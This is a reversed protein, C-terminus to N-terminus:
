PTGKWASNQAGIAVCMSPACGVGRILDGNNDPLSQAASWTLTGNADELYYARQIGSVVCYPRTATLQACSPNSLGGADLPKPGSWLSGNYIEANGDRGSAVCLTSSLCSVSEFSAGFAAGDFSVVKSWGTVAGTWETYSGFQDVAVCFSSSVCSVSELNTNSSDPSPDALAWTGRAPDFTSAQAGSVAACFGTPTCSIAAPGFPDSLVRQDATSSSWANGQYRWVSHGGTPASDIAVCSGAAPCSIAGLGFFGPATHAADHVSTPTTSWSTGDFTVYGGGSDVAACFSATACSVAQAHNVGGWPVLTWGEGGFVNVNNDGILAVCFAASGCSMPAASAQFSADTGSPAASWSRGTYEFFNDNQGNSGSAFCDGGPACAFPGTPDPGYGDPLTSSSWAAGDYTFMSTAAGSSFLAVCRTSSACSFADLFDDGTVSPPLAAGASWGTGDWAALAVTSTGSLALCSTTSSCSLSGSLFTPDGPFHAPASWDAGDTSSFTNGLSDAVMCFAAGAACSVVVLPSSFSPPNAVTSWTTGNYDFVNGSVPDAAVCLNSSSCSVLDLLPTAGPNSDVHQPTNWVNNQYVAADGSSGGVAACFDSTPCSIANWNEVPQEALGAASWTLPPGPTVSVENSAVSNGLANVAKVTFYYTPGVTLGTVPYSLTTQPILAGNLPTSSEKGASTGEFVRYGQIPATGAYAPMTWSLDARSLGPVGQLATPPAPVALYWGTVDVMINVTGGINFITLGGTASLRAVVLNSQFGNVPLNLDPTPPRPAGPYVTLSTRQTPNVATLNVVAATAGYPVAFQGGIQVPQTKGPGVPMGKNSTGNCQAAPGSLHSPNGARTDCIRLPAPEPIFTAASLTASAATYYGSIDVTVNTAQTSYVDLKGAGLKVIVRNSIVQGAAYTLDSVAPPGVAGNPYLTIFGAGSPAMATVNAVMAIANLPVSFAKAAATVALHGRAALPHGNCQAALGTLNSPNHLRTDCIRLSSPLAQYLGSGTGGLATPAVYGHLDVIVDSRMSAFISIDGGTGLTVEVMNALTAGKATVHLNPTAPVPQGTAFVTLFGASAPNMATVNVVV